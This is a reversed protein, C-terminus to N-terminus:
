SKTVEITPPTLTGVPDNPRKVIEEKPQLWKLVVFTSGEKTHLWEERALIWKDHLIHNVILEMEVIDGPHDMDFKHYHAFYNAFPDKEEPTTRPKTPDVILDEAAPFLSLGDVGEQRMVESVADVFDRRVNEAEGM